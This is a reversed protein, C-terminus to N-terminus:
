LTKQAVIKYGTTEWPYKKVMKQKWKGFIKYASLSIGGILDIFGKFPTDYTITSVSLIRFDNKNLVKEIEERSYEYFHEPDAFYFLESSKLLKKWGTEPNDIVLLLIGDKKLVRKIELIAFDRKKLHELVDSCVVKDFSNNRFPLRLNADHQYFNVNKAGSKKMLEGAVSLSKKNIDLGTASKVFGAAILLDTGVGCGIDLIFDKKQLYNKFWLNKNKVLHKPHIPVESKGTLYVLRISLASLKETKKLFKIFFKM